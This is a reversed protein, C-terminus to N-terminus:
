NKQFIFGNDVSRGFFLLYAERKDARKQGFHPKDAAFPTAQPLSTAESIINQMAFHISFM